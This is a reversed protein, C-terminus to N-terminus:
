GPRSLLRLFARIADADYAGSKLLDPGAYYTEPAFIVGPGLTVNVGLQSGDGLIVGLKQRGTDRGDIAITKSDFRLNATKAGAGFHVDGGLISDGVYNFHDLRVGNMLISRVVESGHGIVCDRGTVVHERIYAGARLTCNEGIIAPGLIVVGPEIVTGRGIEVDGELYVDRKVIGANGPRVGGSIFRELM